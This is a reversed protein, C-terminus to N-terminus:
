GGEVHKRHAYHQVDGDGAAAGHGIALGVGEGVAGEFCPLIGVHM